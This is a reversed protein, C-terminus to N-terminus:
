ENEQSIKKKAIRYFSRKGGFFIGMQTRGAPSMDEEDSNSDTGSDELEYQHHTNIARTTEVNDVSADTDFREYIHEFRLSFFFWLYKM